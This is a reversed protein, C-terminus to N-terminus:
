DLSHVLVEVIALVLDSFMAELRAIQGFVVAVVLRHGQAVTYDLRAIGVFDLNAGRYLQAVSRYWGLEEVPEM